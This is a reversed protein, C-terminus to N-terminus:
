DQESSPAAESGGKRRIRLRLGGIMALPALLLLLNAATAGTPADDSPLSCAGDGSEAVPAPTAEPTPSTTATVIVTIIQVPQTPASAAPAVTSTTAETTATPPVPTATPAATPTETPTAAPTPTLTPTLTPEPTPTPTATPELTPAATATPAHTPTPTPTSTPISTATPVPTLTPTLTPEPTPTATPTPTHTATPTTTPHSTPTPTPTPRNGIQPGFEWWTAVGDKNTDVKLIPYQISTGFNWVDDVGTTPDFDKDANDLDIKWNEYIGTYDTPTQLESTTKGELGVSDGDGVGTRQRTTRTDWLSDIATGQEHNKGILGGFTKSSSVRGTAYSAIVTNANVGVLAGTGQNGRVSGTAYSAIVTGSNWGVIGGTSWDGSIDVDAFSASITGLNVGAVGGSFDDASISGTAFSSYVRGFNYGALAGTNGTGIVTIDVDSIGINRIISSRGSHGLLGVGGGRIRLLPTDRKIYLSRITYGNGDLITNFQSEEHGIPLWGIGATWKSNVKGAAYSDGDDFDLSRVLEYGKCDSNCVGEGATAPFAATWTEVGSDDDPRGDGNLDYRIADLQELYEIEILGDGDTDYKGNASQSNVVGYTAAAAILLGAALLLPLLSARLKAM